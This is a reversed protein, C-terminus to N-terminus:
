KVINHQNKGYMLMFWGHTYMHGVMRFMSFGLSVVLFNSPSVLSYLLTAPYLILYNRKLFKFETCKVVVNLLQSLLSNWSIVKSAITSTTSYFFIFFTSLLSLVTIWFPMELLSQICYFKESVSCLMEQAKWVDELLGHSPLLMQLPNVPRYLLCLSLCDQSM